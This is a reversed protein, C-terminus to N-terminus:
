RVFEYMKFPVHRLGFVELAVTSRGRELAKEKQAGGLVHQAISVFMGAKTDKCFPNQSSCGQAVVAM